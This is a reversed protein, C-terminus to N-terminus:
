TRSAVGGGSRGSMLAGGPEGVPRPKQKSITAVLPDQRSALGLLAERVGLESEIKLCGRRNLKYVDNRALPDRSHAGRQSAIVDLYV